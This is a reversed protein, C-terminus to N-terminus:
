LEAGRRLSSQTYAVVLKFRRPVAKPDGKKIRLM